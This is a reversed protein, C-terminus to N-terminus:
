QLPLLTNISGWTKPLAVSNYGKELILIILADQLLKRTRQIRRDVKKDAM